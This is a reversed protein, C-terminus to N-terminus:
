FVSLFKSVDDRTLDGSAIQGAVVAFALSIAGTLLAAMAGRALRNSQEENDLTAYPMRNWGSVLKATLWLGMLTLVGENIDYFGIVATFLLREFVGMFGSPVGRGPDDPDRDDRINMYCDRLSTLFIIGAVHGVVIVYGVAVVWRWIPTQDSAYAVVPVTVAAVIFFTITLLLCLAWLQVVEEEDQCDYRCGFLRCVSAAFM